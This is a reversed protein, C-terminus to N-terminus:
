KMKILSEMEHQSGNTEVLVNYIGVPLESIDIAEGESVYATQILSGYMSFIKIEINQVDDIKEDIQQVVFHTSAPNPYITYMDDPNGIRLHSIIIPIVFYGMSVAPLEVCVCEPCLSAFPGPCTVSPSITELQTIEFRNEVETEMEYDCMLYEVNIEFLASSGGTSYLQDADLIVAGSSTGLTAEFYLPDEFAELVDGPDIGFWQVQDTVNTYFIYADREAMDVFVTPAQNDNLSAMTTVSKFYELDNLHIINWLEAAFYTARRIYYNQDVATSCNAIEGLIVQDTTDSNTMMMTKTGGLFNQLTARTLFFHRYDLDYNAKVNWLFWNQLMAAHSFSNSVSSQFEQYIKGNHAEYIGGGPLQMVDSLNYETLWVEKDEPDDDDDTFLMWNAHEEFSIDLRDRTFEKFNGTVLANAPMGTIGYFADDLRYDPTSPVGGSVFDWVPTDYDFADIEVTTYTGADFQPHLALMIERWNSNTDCAGQTNASTYYPHFIIADFKYKECASESTTVSDYYTVMDLNWQPYYCNCGADTVEPDPDTIVPVTAAVDYRIGNEDPHPMLPFDYLAGCNPTNEAPLGVKIDCYDQSSKLAHIFDHDNEMDDSLANELATQEGGDAYDYGNIYYWYHAFDTFGMIYTGFNDAVENGLEVGVVNIDNDLLYDLVDLVETASQSEINVCYLVDITYDGNDGEVQNVLNILDNIYLPQTETTTLIDANYTPQEMCKDYAELFVSRWNEDIWLCYDLLPNCGGALETNIQTFDYDGGDLPADPSLDTMDFYPIMDQWNYGYGGFYWHGVPDYCSGLPHMFKAAAGSFVRITKPALDSLADWPNPAYDYVSNNIPAAHKQTFFETLNVGILGDNVEAHHDDLKVIMQKYPNNIVWAGELLSDPIEEAYTIYVSDFGSTYIAITDGVEFGTTDEILTDPQLFILDANLSITHLNKDFNEAYSFIATLTLSLFVLATKTFVVGRISPNKM